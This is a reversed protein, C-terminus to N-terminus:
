QWTCHRVVATQQQGGSQAKATDDTYKLWRGVTRYGSVAFGALFLADWPLLAAM